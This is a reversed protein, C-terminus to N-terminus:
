GAIEMLTIRTGGAQINVSGGVVRDFTGSVSKVYLKYSPNTSSPTYLISGYVREMGYIDNGNNGNIVAISGCLGGNADTGINTSGEYLTLVFPYAWSSSQAEGITAEVTAFVKSNAQLNNDFTVGTFLGSDVFSTSTKTIKTNNVAHKVQVVSGGRIPIGAATVASLSQNNLKTLAM